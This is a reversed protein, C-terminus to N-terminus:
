LVLDELLELLPTAAVEAAEAAVLILPELLERLVLLEVLVEVVLDVVVVVLEMLVVEAEAVPV